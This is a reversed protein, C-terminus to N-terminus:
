WPRTKKKRSPAMAGNIWHTICLFNLIFKRLYRLKGTIKEAGIKM